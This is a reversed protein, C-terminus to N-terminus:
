LQALHAGVRADNSVPRYWSWVPTGGLLVSLNGVPDGLLSADDPSCVLDIGEFTARLEAVGAMHDVHGHTLLIVDPQLQGQRVDDAVETCDEGPDVIWCHGDDVVVFTNVMLPGTVFTRIEVSM